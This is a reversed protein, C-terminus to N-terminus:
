LDFKKVKEYVEESLSVLPLRLYNQIINKETLFAKIGAPNNECFMLDYAPLLQDNIKKATTFDGNLSVQIM